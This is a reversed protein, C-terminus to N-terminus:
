YPFLKGIRGNPGTLYVEKGNKARKCSHYATTTLNKWNMGKDNSTDVGGLGCSLASNQNIFTIGSKYGRPPTQPARIEPKKSDTLEFIFLNNESSTPNEFDGGVIMGFKSAGWFDLGNAGSTASESKTLNVKTYPKTNIILNSYSGGTVSIFTQDDMMFSNSGSAAFYAEGESLQPISNTKLKEWSNGQDTTMLVYPQGNIPDGVAVGFGPHSDSFDIDDLFVGPQGDQFVVKWTKGADTTKIILGPEGVAMAVATQYDFAEIDRFDRDEFGKPNVWNITKGGNMSFGITGNSGSVWFVYDDIVSLGRFSVNPHDLNLIKVSQGFSFIAGLILMFISINTKM